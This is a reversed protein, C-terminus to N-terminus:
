RVSNLFEHTRPEQFGESGARVHWFFVNLRNCQRIHLGDAREAGEPAIYLAGSIVALVSAAAFAIFAAGFFLLMRYELFITGTM